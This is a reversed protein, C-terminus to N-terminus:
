ACPFGLVVVGSTTASFRLPLGRARGSFKGHLRFRAAWVASHAMAGDRL